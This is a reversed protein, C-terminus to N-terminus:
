ASHRERKVEARASWGGDMRGDRASSSFDVIRLKWFQFPSLSLPPHQARTIIKMKLM